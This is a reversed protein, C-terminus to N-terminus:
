KEGGIEDIIQCNCGRWDFSDFTAILEDGNYLRLRRDRDSDDVRTVPYVTEDKLRGDTVVCKMVRTEESKSEVGRWFAFWIIFVIVMASSITIILEDVFCIAKETLNMEDYTKLIM